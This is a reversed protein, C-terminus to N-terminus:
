RFFDEAKAGTVSRIISSEQNGGPQGPDLAMRIESMKPLDVKNRFKKGFVMADEDKYGSPKKGKMGYHEESNKWFSIMKEEKSNGRQRNLKDKIQNGYASSAFIQNDWEDHPKMDYSLYWGSLLAALEDIFNHLRDQTHEQYTFYEDLQSDDENLMRLEEIIAKKKDELIYQKKLRSVEERIIEKLQSKTIKKKGKKNSENIESPKKYEPIQKQMEDKIKSLLYKSEDSLVDYWNSIVEREPFHFNRTLPDYCMYIPGEKHSVFLVGYRNQKEDWEFGDNIFWEIGNLGKIKTDRNLSNINPYLPAKWGETYDVQPEKGSTFKDSQDPASIENIYKSNKIRSAEERIIQKLQSKTVKM